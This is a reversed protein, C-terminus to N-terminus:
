GRPHFKRHVSKLRDTDVHTYIQTTSIDSHGLMMQLARLDAGGALLHTAFSHRIMHPSIAKSIGAAMAMDGIIQWFRVRTMAAGRNSLFLPTKPKGKTLVPRSRELYLQLLTLTDSSFPVIREKDGKGLFRLHGSSLNCGSLPLNVLESARLGSAYLVHLMTYNRLTIPSFERPPTLLTEVENRSLAKPLSRGIKPTDIDAAPNSPLAGQAQLYTGFARLAALRRANSRNSFGKQYCHKLFQQIREKNLTTEEDPATTRCFRQFAELDAQYAAVTNTALRRQIILYQLFLQM